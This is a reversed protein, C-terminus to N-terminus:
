LQQGRGWRRRRVEPGLGPSSHDARSTAVAAAFPKLLARSSPAEPTKWAENLKQAFLRATIDTASGATFGVIIRVRPFTGEREKRYLQSASYKIGRAELEARDLIRMPTTEHASNRSVVLSQKASDMSPRTTTTM